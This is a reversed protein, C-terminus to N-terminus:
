DRTEPPAASRFILYLIGGAVLLGAVAAVKQLEVSTLVIGSVILYALPTVPYGWTRYPREATPMKRRLIYVATVTMAYFITGGMIVFDTLDDFTAKPNTTVAAFIVIQLMSWLAQAIIANAPTKLRPHIRRITAPFLGDRAMAFYIRPGALLNSNLAGFTSIMVGAAAITLGVDGVLIRSADAAVTRSHIIQDIPMLLHYGVNAGLYVVIVVLMGVGLGIPVNRQPNRVEEAVPGINIWGDYPWYVAILALGIGKWLTWTPTIARPDVESSLNSWSGRALLFPGAILFLLFSLKIATTVNQTNASWRTGIVNVTSLVAVAAIALVAQGVHSLPVLSAMWSPLLEFEELSMLFGNFYIVTGYALSGLSGTRVIAFETWGWLFAVPRGYAERLYVYPGGAHPLMASLEALALAGSLTATGAVAWIILVPWFAGLAADVSDIKLFIGSGIISGVV